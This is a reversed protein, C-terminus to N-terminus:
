VKSTVFTVAVLVALQLSGVLGACKSRRATMTGVTLGTAWMTLEIPRKRRSSSLSRKKCSRAERRASTSRAGSGCGRKTASVFVLLHDVAVTVLRPVGITAVMVLSAVVRTVRVGGGTVTTEPSRVSIWTVTVAGAGVNVLVRYM